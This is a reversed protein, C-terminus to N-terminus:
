RKVVSEGEGRGGRSQLALPSSASFACRNWFISEAEPAPPRGEFVTSGWGRRPTEARRAPTARAWFACHTAFFDGVEFPGRGGKRGKTM